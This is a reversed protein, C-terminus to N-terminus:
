IMISRLEEPSLLQMWAASTPPVNNKRLLAEFEPFTPAIYLKGEYVAAFENLHDKVLEPYLEDLKKLDEGFRKLNNLTQAAQAEDM